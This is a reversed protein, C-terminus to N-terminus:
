VEQDLREVRRRYREDPNPRAHCFAKVIPEMETPEMEDASLCLVNAWDHERGIAASEPTRAYIARIGKIRNAQMTVGHASGCLLIGFGYEDALVKEAVMIAADNFDDDPNYATPWVDEVKLFAHCNQVLKILETKKEFGRHDSGFYLTYDPM